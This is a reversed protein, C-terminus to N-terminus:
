FPLVFSLNTGGEKRIRVEGGVWKERPVKVLGGLKPFVHRGAGWNGGYGGGAEGGDARRAGEPEEGECEGGEGKEDAEGGSGLGAGEVGVFGDVGAEEAVEEGALGVAVIGDVPVAGDEEEGGAGEDGEEADVCVVGELGPV